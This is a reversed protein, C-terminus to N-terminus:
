PQRAGVGTIQNLEQRAGVGTIQDLEHRAGVDATKNKEDAAGTDIEEILIVGHVHNPMVVFDEVAVGPYHAPIEQWAQDVIRGM